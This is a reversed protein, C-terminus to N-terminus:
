PTHLEHCAGFQLLESLCKPGSLKLKNKQEKKKKAKKVRPICYITLIVNQIIEVKTSNFM